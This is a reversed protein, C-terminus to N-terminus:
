SLFYTQMVHYLIEVNTNKHMEKQKSNISSIGEPMILGSMNHQSTEKSVYVKPGSDTDCVNKFRLVHYM